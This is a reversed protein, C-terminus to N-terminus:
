RPLESRVVRFKGSAEPEIAPVEEFEVALGTGCREAIRARFYDEDLSEVPTALVLQLWGPLSLAAGFPEALMPLVLPLTLVAAIAV